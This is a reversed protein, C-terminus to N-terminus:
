TPEQPHLTRGHGVHVRYLYRSGCAWAARLTAVLALLLIWGAQYRVDHVWMTSRCTLTDNRSPSGSVRVLAGSKKAM